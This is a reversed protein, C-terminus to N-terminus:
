DTVAAKVDGIASEIDDYIPIIQDIGASVLVDKVMPTPKLLVMKGGRGTLSKANSVLIRVGYSAIFEIQSMDVIVGGKKSATQITFPDEITSTGQIDMRGILSIQKIDDELLAVEFKM